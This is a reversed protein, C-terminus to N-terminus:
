QDIFSHIKPQGLANVKKYQAEPCIMQYLHFYLRDIFPNSENKQLLLEAPDSFFIACSLHIMPHLIIGGECNKFANFISCNM